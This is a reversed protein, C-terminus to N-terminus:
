DSRVNEPEINKKRTNEIDRSSVHAFYRYYLHFIHYLGIQTEVEMYIM